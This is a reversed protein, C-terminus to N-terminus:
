RQKEAELERIVLMKAEYEKRKDELAKQKQEKVNETRFAELEKVLRLKTEEM